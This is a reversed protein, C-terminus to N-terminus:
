LCSTPPEIGDGGMSLARCFVADRMSILGTSHFRMGRDPVNV